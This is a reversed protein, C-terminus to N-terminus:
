IAQLIPAFEVRTGSAVFPVLEAIARGNDAIRGFARAALVMHMAWERADRADGVVVGRRLVQHSLGTLEECGPAFGDISRLEFAERAGDACSRGIRGMATVLALLLPDRRPEYGSLPILKAVNVCQNGIREICRIADLLATLLRLDGAVPAQTAIVRVICDDVGICARDLVVSDAIVAQAVAIDHDEIAALVRDLDRIAVTLATLAQRECSRLTEIFQHRAEYMISRKGFKPLDM